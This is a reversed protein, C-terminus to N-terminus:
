KYHSLSKDHLDDYWRRDLKFYSNGCRDKCRACYTANDVSSNKVSETQIAAADQKLSQAVYQNYRQVADQQINVATKSADSAVKQIIEVNVYRKCRTLTALAFERAIRSPSALVCSCSVIFLLFLNIAYKKM